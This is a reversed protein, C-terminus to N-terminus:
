RALVVVTFMGAVLMAMVVVVMAIMLLMHTVVTEELAVNTTKSIKCM